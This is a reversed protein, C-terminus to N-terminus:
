GRPSSESDLNDLYSYMEDLTIEGLRLHEVMREASIVYTTPLVNAPYKRALTIDPDLLVPIGDIGLDDLFESIRAPEEGQNVALVVAGTEGQAEMFAQFAPLERVCPACDTRWFNLFVTRGEFDSLSVTEGELSILEFDEAEWDNLSRNGPAPAAGVIAGTSNGNAAVNAGPRGGEMLLMAGALVVGMLGSVFLLVLAPSIKGAPEVEPGVPIVENEDPSQEEEDMVPENVDFQTM